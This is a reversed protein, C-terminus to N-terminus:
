RSGFVSNPLRFCYNKLYYNFILYKYRGERKGKTLDHTERGRGAGAGPQSPPFLLCSTKAAASYDRLKNRDLFASVSPALRNRVGTISHCSNLLGRRPEFTLRLKKINCPHFRAVSSASGGRFDGLIEVADEATLLPDDCLESLIDLDELGVGKPVPVSFDHHLDGSASLNIVYDVAHM